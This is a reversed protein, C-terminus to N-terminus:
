GLNNILSHLGRLAIKRKEIKDMEQRKRSNQSHPTLFEEWSNYGGYADELEINDRKLNADADDSSDDRYLDTSFSPTTPQTNEFLPSEEFVFFPSQNSSTQSPEEWFSATNQKAKSARKEALSEIKQQFRVKKQQRNRRRPTFSEIPQAHHEDAEYQIGQTSEQYSTSEQFPSSSSSERYFPSQNVSFSTASPQKAGNDEYVLSETYHIRQRKRLKHERERFIPQTPEPEEEDFSHNMQLPQPESSPQSFLQPLSSPEGWPSGQIPEPIPEPEDDELSIREVSYVSYDDLQEQESKFPTRSKRRLGKKRSSPIPNEQFFSYPSAYEVEQAELVEFEEEASESEDDLPQTQYPDVEYYAPEQVFDSSEETEPESKVVHIAYTTTEGAPTHLTSQQLTLKHGHDIEETASSPENTEAKILSQSVLTAVMEPTMQIYYASKGREQLPQVTEQGSPDTGIIIFDYQSEHQSM